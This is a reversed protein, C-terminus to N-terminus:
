IGRSWKEQDNKLVVGELELEMLISSVDSVSLGSMEIIEELSLKDVTLLNIVQQSETSFSSLDISIMKPFGIDYDKLIDEPSIVLKAIQTKILENCGQSNSRTLDAPIAYVNRNQEFASRATILSGSKVAAEIVLTSYSLGSIIRNRLPFYAPLPETNPFFESIICGDNELISDYLAFNSSPYIHSLGHGVVGICKGSNKLVARHAITDIGLALGSIVTFGNRAFEDAFKICIDKGYLSFKRTGVIAISKSFDYNINGKYFLIIPPDFIARLSAPYQSETINVYSLKEKEIDKLIKDFEPEINRFNEKFSKIKRLSLFRKIYDFKITETMFEPCNEIITQIARDGIEPILKLRIINQTLIDM